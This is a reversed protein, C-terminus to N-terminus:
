PYLLIIREIAWSVRRDLIDYPTIVSSHWKCILSEDPHSELKRRWWQPMTLSERRGFHGRKVEPLHLSSQRPSLVISKVNATNRYRRFNVSEQEINAECLEGFGFYM